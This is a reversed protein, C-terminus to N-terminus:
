PTSYISDLRASEKEYEKYAEYWSDGIAEWGNVQHVIPIRRGDRDKITDEFEAMKLMWVQGTETDLRYITPWEFPERASVKVSASIIQYRGMGEDAVVQSATIVIATIAVLIMMNRHVM